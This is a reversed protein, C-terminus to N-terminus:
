SNGLRSTRLEFGIVKNMDLYVDYKNSSYNKYTLFLKNDLPDQESTAFKSESCYILGNTLDEKKLGTDLVIFKKGVATIIGKKVAKNNKDFGYVTDGILPRRFPFKNNESYIAGESKLITGNDGDIETGVLCGNVAEATRFKIKILENTTDFTILDRHYDIGQNNDLLITKILPAQTETNASIGLKDLVATMKASTM